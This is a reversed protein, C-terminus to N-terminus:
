LFQDYCRKFKVGLGCFCPQKQSINHVTTPDLFYWRESPKDQQMASNNDKVKVFTSLEHHAKLRNAIGLEISAVESQLDYFYAKFEVQAHNKSVKSNHNIIQLRGM